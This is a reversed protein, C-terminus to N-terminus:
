VRKGRFSMLHSVHNCTFCVVHSITPSRPLRVKFPNLPEFRVINTTNPVPTYSLTEPPCTAGVITPFVDVWGECVEENRVQMMTWPTDRSKTGLRCTSSCAAKSHRVVHTECFKSQLVTAKRRRSVRILPAGRRYPVRVQRHRRRPIAQAPFVDGREMRQRGNLARKMQWEFGGRMRRMARVPNPVLTRKAADEGTRHEGAAASRQPRRARGQVSAPRAFWAGLRSRLATSVSRCVFLTTMLAVVVRVLLGM